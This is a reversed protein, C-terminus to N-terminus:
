CTPLAVAAFVTLGCSSGSWQCHLMVAVARAVTALKPENVFLSQQLGRATNSDVIAIVVAGQEAFLRVHSQQLSLLEM